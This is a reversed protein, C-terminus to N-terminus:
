DVANMVTLSSSTGTANVQILHREGDGEEEGEVRQTYLTEHEFIFGFFFFSSLWVPM